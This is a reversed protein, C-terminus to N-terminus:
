PDVREHVPRGSALAHGFLDIHRVELSNKPSLQLYIAEIRAPRGGIETVAQAKGAPDVFVHFRRRDFSVLQVRYGGAGDEAPEVNVGYAFTRELFSLKKRKGSSAYRLWYVDVPRGPDLTSDARLNADYVVTNANSSRQLYFLRKPDAPPAPYDPPITSAITVGDNGGAAAAPAVLWALAALWPLLRMMRAAPM